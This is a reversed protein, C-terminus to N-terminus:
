GKHRGRVVPAIALLWTGSYDRLLRMRLVLLEQAESTRGLVTAREGAAALRSLYSAALTLTRRAHGFVPAEGTTATEDLLAKIGAVRDNLAVRLAAAELITRELERHAPTEAEDALRRFAEIERAELHLPYVESTIAVRAAPLDPDTGALIAKLRELADSLLASGADPEGEEDLEAPPEAEAAKRGLRASLSRVNARISALESLKLEDAQLRREFVEVERRFRQLDRALEPEVPAERELDFLRQYEATIRREEVAYLQHVLNKFVLNTELIELLLRPQFLRRGLGHKLERFRPVLRRENLEELTASTTAEARLAKLEAVREEILGDPTEPGDQLNWLGTAVERLRGREILGFRGTADREQALTTLLFDVKDLRDGDWEASGQSYVYFKVLQTLINEDQNRVRQFFHRLQPPSVKSDQRVLAASLARLRQEVADLEDEIAGPDAAGLRGSIAKLEGYVVQFSAALEGPPGGAFIKRLSDLYQHFAWASRFQNSLNAYRGHLRQLDHVSM